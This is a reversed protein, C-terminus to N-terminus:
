AVVVVFALSARMVLSGERGASPKAGPKAPGPKDLLVFTTAVCTANITARATQASRPRQRRPGSINVIRTFKGVRDFFLALNHYPAKSSSAHDAVRRAAAQHRDALAQLGQHHGHEVPGGGDAHQNLLDPRTRKKRAPDGEPQALRGELDTM